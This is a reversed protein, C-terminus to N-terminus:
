IIKPNISGKQRLWIAAVQKIFSISAYCTVARSIKVTGKSNSPPVIELPVHLEANVATAKWANAEM